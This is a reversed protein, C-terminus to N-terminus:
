KYTLRDPKKRNRQPRAIKEVPDEALRKKLYYNPQYDGDNEVTIEVAFEPDEEWILELEHWDELKRDSGNGGDMNIM